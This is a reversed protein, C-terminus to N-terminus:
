SVKHVSASFVYLSTNHSVRQNIHIFILALLSLCFLNSLFLTILLSVWNINKWSESKCSIYNRIALLWVYDSEWLQWTITLRFSLSYSLPLRYLCSCAIAHHITYWAYYILCSYFKKRTMVNTQLLYNWEIDRTFVNSYAMMRECELVVKVALHFFINM